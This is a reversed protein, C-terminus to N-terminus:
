FELEHVTTLMRVSRKDEWRMAMWVNNHAVQVEGRVLKNELKSMGKRNSKVTGCMGTDRDHLFEALTSTYWNDIYVVHSIVLLAWILSKIILILVMISLKQTTSIDVLGTRLLNLTLHPKLNHQGDSFRLSM